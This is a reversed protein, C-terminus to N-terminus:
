GLDVRALAEDPGSRPAPVTAVPTASSSPRRPTAMEPIAGTVVVARPSAGRPNHLYVDAPRLRAAAGPALPHSASVGASGLVTGIGGALMVGAALGALHRRYRMTGERNVLEDHSEAVNAIRAQVM